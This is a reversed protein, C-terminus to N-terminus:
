TALDIELIAQVDDPEVGDVCLRLAKRLFPDSSNKSDEELSLIGNKRARTAYELITAIIEDPKNPSSFCLKLDKTAQIVAHMPFSIFAAGFTGGLVIIAATPQVLSNFHLGELLAGGLVAGLGLVLGIITAIDM